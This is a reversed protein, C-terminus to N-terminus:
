IQALRDFVIKNEDMIRRAFARIDEEPIDVKIVKMRRNKLPM